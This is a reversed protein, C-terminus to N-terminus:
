RRVFDLVEQKINIIDEIRKDHREKVQQLGKASDLAKRLERVMDKKSFYFLPSVFHPTLHCLQHDFKSTQRPSGRITEITIEPKSNLIWEDYFSNQPKM